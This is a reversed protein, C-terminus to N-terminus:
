QKVLNISVSYANMVSTKLTKTCEILQRQLNENEKLLPDKEKTSTRRRSHRETNKNLEIHMRYLKDLEDDLLAIRQFHRRIEDNM